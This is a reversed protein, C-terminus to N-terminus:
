VLSSLLGLRAAGRKGYEFGDVSNRTLRRLCLLARDTPADLAFLALQRRTGQNREPIEAELRGSPETVSGGHHCWEVSTASTTLSSHSTVGAKV